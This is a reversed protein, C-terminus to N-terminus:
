RSTDGDGEWIVATNQDPQVITVVDGDGDGVGDGGGMVMGMEM